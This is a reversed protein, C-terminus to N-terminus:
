KDKNYIHLMAIAGMVPYCLSMSIYLLINETVGLLRISLLGVLLLFALIFFVNPLNLHEKKIVVNCFQFISFLLMTALFYPSKDM